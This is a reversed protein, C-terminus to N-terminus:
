SDAQWHVPCPNSGQGPYIECAKPCSIGCAVVVPGTGWLGHEAVLSAVFHFARVSGVVSYGWEGFNSFAKVYYCLDEYLLTALFLYFLFCFYM